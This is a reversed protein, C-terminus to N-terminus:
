RTAEHDAIARAEHQQYGAALADEYAVQWPTRDGDRGPAQPNTVSTPSVESADKGKKDGVDGVDGVKTSSFSSSSVENPSGGWVTPATPSTPSLPTKEAAATDGDEGQGTPSAQRTPAPPTEPDPPHYKWERVKGNRVQRRQWGLRQLIGAVRMQESRGWREKDINLAGSLVEGLSTAQVGVLWLRVTDEWADALRRAEQEETAAELVSKDSIHWPEGALVDAVAEALLQDRDRRLAAVDVLEIKVPWYRRNGTEDRLYDTRNCTGCLVATRPLDVARRDYPLRIRDAQVTVAAKTAASEHRNLAELESMEAILKGALNQVARDGVVSQVEVYFPGGLIAFATSKFRGQKGELILAADVKAGPTLGRAAVSRLWAVGVARTYANGEAGAYTTLWGLLRRVGDWKLSQLHQRIPNYSRERAVAVVADLVRGPSANLRWSSTQFWIALIQEDGARWARPFSGKLCPGGAALEIDQTAENFSFAGQWEPSCRLICALNALNNIVNRRADRILAREWDDGGKLAKLHKDKATL